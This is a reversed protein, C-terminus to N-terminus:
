SIARWPPWAGPVREGAPPEGDLYVDAEPLRTAPGTTRVALLLRGDPRQAAAPEVPEGFEQAQAHVEDAWLRVRAHELDSFAPHDPPVRLPFLGGEHLTLLTPCLAHASSGYERNATKALREVVAPNADGAVILLDGHPVAVIPDGEVQGALSDLWGPVLLLSATYGPPGDISWIPSPARPDWPEKRIACTLQARGRDLADNGDVGWGELDAATVYAMTEPADVVLAEILCPGVPRAVLGSHGRAVQLLGGGRLVSRLRPRADEWTAPGPEPALALDLRHDLAATREEPSSDRCELYLNELHLAFAGGEHPAIDLALDDRRAIAQDVGDHALARARALELFAARPDTM